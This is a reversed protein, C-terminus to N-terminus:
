SNLQHARPRAINSSWRSFCAVTPLLFHEPYQSTRLGRHNSHLHCSPTGLPLTSLSVESLHLSDTARALSGPAPMVAAVSRGPYHPDPSPPQWLAAGTEPTREAAERSNRSCM